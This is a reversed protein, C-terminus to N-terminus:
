SYPSIGRECSICCCTKQPKNELKAINAEAIHCDDCKIGEIANYFAQKQIDEIKNGCKTCTFIKM